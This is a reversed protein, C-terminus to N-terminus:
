RRWDAHPASAQVLVRLRDGQHRTVSGRTDVSTGCTARQLWGAIRAQTHWEGVLHRARDTCRHVPLGLVALILLLLGGAM